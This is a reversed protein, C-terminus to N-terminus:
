YGGVEDEDEKDKDERDEKGKEKGEVGVGALADDFTCEEMPRTSQQTTHPPKTCGTHPKCVALVVVARRDEDHIIFRSYTGLGLVGSRLACSFVRAEM